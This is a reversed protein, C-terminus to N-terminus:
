PRWEERYDPHSAYPMALLRLVPRLYEQGQAKAYYPGLHDQTDLYRSVVARKAQCELALRRQDHDTSAEIAAAYTVLGGEDEEIRALLFEDISM